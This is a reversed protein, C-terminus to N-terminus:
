DAEGAPDGDERRRGPQAPEVLGSVGDKARDGPATTLRQGARQYGNALGRLLSLMIAAVVVAILYRTLASMYDLDHAVFAHWLASSDLVAALLLTPMRAFGVTSM